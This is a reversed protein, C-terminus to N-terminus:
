GRLILLLVIGERVSSLNAPGSCQTVDCQMLKRDACREASVSEPANEPDGLALERQSRRKAPSGHQGGETPGSREIAPARPDDAPVEAPAALPEPLSSVPLACSVRLAEGQPVSCQVLDSERRRVGLPDGGLSGRNPALTGTGAETDVTAHAFSLDATGQELTVPFDAQAKATQSPPHPYLDAVLGDPERGRHGQM